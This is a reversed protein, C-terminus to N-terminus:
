VPLADIAQQLQELITNLNELLKPLDKEGSLNAFSPLNLSVGVIGIIPKIIDLLPEIVAIQEMLQELSIQANNNACDLSALLVPNGQASNLDIGVQFDLISKIAQIICRLYAIILRLIDALMKPLKDFVLFCDAAEAASKGIDGLKGVPNGPEALKALSQVVKLVRLFCTMGALTPTLQLMLSHVLACDTPPGKSTDALSQLEGGFPLTITLKKAKPLPVCPIKNSDTM